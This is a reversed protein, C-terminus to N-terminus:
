KIPDWHTIFYVFYDATQCFLEFDYYLIFHIVFCPNISESIYRLFMCVTNNTDKCLKLRFSKLNNFILVSLEASPKSTIFQKCSTFIYWRKEFELHFRSEKTKPRFLAISALFRYDSVLNKEQLLFSLM